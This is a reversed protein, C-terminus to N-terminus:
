FTHSFELGAGRPQLTANLVSSEEGNADLVWLTGGVAGLVLGVGFLVRANLQRQDMRDLADAKARQVTAGEAESEANSRAVEFAVAGGFSATAAGLAVWHWPSFDTGSEKPDDPRPQVPAAPTENADPKPELPGVPEVPEASAPALQVDVVEAAELEVTATATSPAYAQLEVSVTYQGPELLGRWPTTGRIAGDLKVQAGRPESLVVLLQQGDAALRRQREEILTEVEARDAATPDRRLYDLYWYLSDAPRELQDYARAVNFSLAASPQVADASLFAEVAQDYHGARFAAVGREYDRRAQEAEADVISTTTSQESEEAVAPTIAIAFSSLASLLSLVRFALRSM